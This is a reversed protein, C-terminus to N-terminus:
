SVDPFSVHQLPNDVGTLLVSPLFVLTQTVGPSERHHTVQLCPGSFSTHTPTHPPLAPPLLYWPGPTPRHEAPNLLALSALPPVLPDQESSASGLPGAWSPGAVSTQPNQALHSPTAKWLKIQDQWLGAMPEM